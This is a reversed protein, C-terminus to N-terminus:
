RGEPGQVRPPEGATRLRRLSWPLPAGAGPQETRGRALGRAGCSGTAGWACGPARLGRQARGGRQPSPGHLEGLRRDMTGRGSQKRAGSAPPDVRIGLSAWLRCAEPWQVRSPEGATRPRRFRWPIASRRWATRYPRASASLRWVLRYSGVCLGPACVGNRPEAVSRRPVMSSGSGGTWPGEDARNGLGPVPPDVRIGPSAWLRCAEPLQVRSPEGATRLRRLSWPIASRRWATRYPRAGASPRRVLRYSGVCLGPACVGNRPEAVSRRPVM